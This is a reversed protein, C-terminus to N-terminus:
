ILEYIWFCTVYPYMTTKNLADSFWLQRLANGLSYVVLTGVRVEKIASM